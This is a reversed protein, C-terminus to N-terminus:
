GHARLSARGEGVLCEVPQAALERGMGPLRGLHPHYAVRRGQGVSAPAKWGSILGVMLWRASSAEVPMSEGVSSESL